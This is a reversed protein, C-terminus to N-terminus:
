RSSDSMAVGVAAAVAVAVAVKAASEAIRRTAYDSDEVVDLYRSFAQVAKRDQGAFRYHEGAMAHSEASEPREEEWAQYLAGAQAGKQQGEYLRALREMLPPYHPLLQRLSEHLQLDDKFRDEDLVALFYTQIRFDSPAIALATAVYTLGLRADGHELLRQGTDFYHPGAVGRVERVLLGTGLLTAVLVLLGAALVRPRRGSM